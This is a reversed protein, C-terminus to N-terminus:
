TETRIRSARFRGLGNMILIGLGGASGAISTPIGALVGLYFGKTIAPGAADLAIYRQVLSVGIGVSLFAILCTMPTSLGLTVANAGWLANDVIGLLFASHWHFDKITNPM